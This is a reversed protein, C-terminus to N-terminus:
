VDSHILHFRKSPKYIHNPHSSKTQKAIICHECHFNQIKNSPISPYLIRLYEFSHHGLQQHWLMVNSKLITALSSQISSRFETPHDLRSIQYLGENEKTCGIMKGSSLDQFICHSQSFTVVCGREKTLKNMSLLNCTLDPVYLVSKLTLRAIYARGKALSTTCDALFIFIGQDCPEYNSLIKLSDIM